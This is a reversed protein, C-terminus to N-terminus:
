KLLYQIIKIGAIERAIVTKKLFPIKTSVHLTLALVGHEVLTLHELCKKLAPHTCRTLAVSHSTLIKNSMNLGRFLAKTPKIGFSCTNIKIFNIM